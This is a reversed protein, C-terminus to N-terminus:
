DCRSSLFEMVDESWESRYKLLYSEHGAESYIKLSKEGPLVSYIEKTEEVSVKEDKGGVMLLTKCNISTAYKVPNHTFANFGNELGGWFVLLQAMPFSPVGMVKFRAKVTNMMTSFPCELIVASAELHHDYISKMIAVAGMSTGYLIINREGKQEIYEYSTKVQEAEHYGITTQNGESGGSGMFDVLLTNYGLEQFIESRDILGSKEGSFGHFLIVTGRAQERKMYWCEIRKNSQLTITEFNRVPKTLTVPRPNDVGTLLVKAKGVLTLGAADSRTGEEKTFHTFKYAHFAAVINALAFGGVLVKIIRNRTKKKLRDGFGAL